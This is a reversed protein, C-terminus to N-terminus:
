FPRILVRSNEEQSLIFPFVTASFDHSSMEIFM